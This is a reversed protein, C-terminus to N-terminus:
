PAVSRFVYEVPPQPNLWGIPHGCLGAWAIPEIMSLLLIAWLLRRRGVPLAFVFCMPMYWATAWTVGKYYAIFALPAAYRLLRAPERRDALASGVLAALVGYTALANLALHWGPTGCTKSSDAWNWFYPNCNAAMAPNGLIHFVYQSRLAFALSPLFSLVLSLLSRSGRLTGLFYPLLAAPWYKAQIALGLWAHAWSSNRRLLLLALLVCFAVLAEYQGERSTWWVSVPNLFFALGLWRDGSLRAILGANLLDLATLVLRPFFLCPYVAATAAFFLLAVAPYIFQLRPWLQAYPADGFDAPTYNYISLGYRWFEHGFGVYRLLDTSNLPPESALHLRWLLGAAYCCLLVLRAHGGATPPPKSCQPAARPPAAAIRFLGKRGARPPREHPRPEFPVCFSGVVVFAVSGLRPTCAGVASGKSGRLPHAAGAM